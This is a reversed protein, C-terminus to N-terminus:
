IKVNDILRVKGLYVAAFIRNGIKEVYEVKFGKRKLNNKIQRIPIGSSLIKPFEAALLREEKTLRLNRSSMALGDKERVTPVSVIKINMFFSNVMGKILQLQQFDKEGFYARQPRVLNFLKMVVTLVGEFHGPRYKGCLIKSFKSEIVKYTYDDPYLEKYTPHFLYDVKLRTLIEIDNELTIPYNRLDNKNNFQTPNVFISVVTLDNEKLSREILAIHGDHLAGMTPVFGVSKNIFSRSERIQKWESIKEVIIM